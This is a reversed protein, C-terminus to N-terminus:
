TPNYWFNRYLLKENNSFGGGGYMRRVGGGIHRRSRKPWPYFHETSRLLSCGDATTLTCKGFASGVCRNSFRRTVCWYWTVRQMIECSDMKKEEMVIGQSVKWQALINCDDPLLPWSFAEKVFLRGRGWWLDMIRGGWWRGWPVRNFGNKEVGGISCFFNGKDPILTQLNIIVSFWGGLINRRNISRSGVCQKISLCPPPIVNIATSHYCLILILRGEFVAPAGM